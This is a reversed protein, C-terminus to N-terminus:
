SGFSFAPQAASPCPRPSIFDPGSFFAERLERREIDDAPRIKQPSDDAGVANM